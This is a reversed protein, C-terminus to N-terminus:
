YKIFNEKLEIENKLSEDGAEFIKPVQTLDNGFLKIRKTDIGDLSLFTGIVGIPQSGYIFADQTNNLIILPSGESTGAARFGSLNIGRVDDCMLAPRYDTEKFGVKINNLSIDRVHRVYFGYSPLTGFMLGEPYEAEKEPVVKLADERTGGGKYMMTINNLSVNKIMNGPIGTISSGILDNSSAIINSITVNRFEGVPPKEMGEMYTRGRNGLRLFLPVSPGDIRVNSITVGDLTGGDVIELSIGSSGYRSGFTAEEDVSPRVIINSITINKFGGHSETGCKVANCHSSVICNSITINESIQGGTSKITLADDDSDGLCDSVVVNRCCDINVMDNHQNCHNYVKIGRIMVYECALYHQLWMASNQLTINEVTVNKCQMFRILYPRKKYRDEERSSPPKFYQGQGDIIGHGLIAVNNLNEGYLLSQTGYNYTYSKFEPIREPYDAVNTSGLLTAGKSIYLAVNSKMLLAGSLYKGPPFYVTGGKKACEDIASQIAETDLNVGDGKAGFKCIDCTLESNFPVSKLNEIRFFFGFVVMLVMFFVIRKNTEILM